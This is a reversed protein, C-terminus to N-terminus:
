AVTEPQPNAGAVPDPTPRSLRTATFAAGAALAAAAILLTLTYGNDFATHAAALLSDAQPAPLEAATVRAQDLSDEAAAPVGAPLHVTATYVSTLASGLLAVGSLSGLEYSVEEVSSAMGAREVPANSMITTSAATMALGIGAGAVVLGPVIWAEHAPHIRLFPAVGPTLLVILLVGATGALLGGVILPRPGTRHAIGGAIVGAPLCGIAFAAVLLGAHLPTLDLVLQLRQTLILQIGATAFMALAAAVIGSLIRPHRLLAFDLLPHEQRRQRRVFLTFGLASVLLALILHLLDPGPKTIEKVAYVLGVLGAMIQLSAIVDWPRDSRGSASPALVAGAALAVVVVPVNVLFVSGWWFHSLLLGGLVPGLAAGVVSMTGWIGMAINREREDHFTTRVLSLTAPMMAAAGVALLARAAILTAASPAFAAAGSALGFVALGALFMRKHGVRDGLTGAGLLLGAMVLPYANIIWLKQSADAGLDHTLTPLATYLVSMDVTIMLLGASVTALLWWRQAGGSM